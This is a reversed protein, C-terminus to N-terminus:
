PKRLLKKQVILMDHCATRLLKLKTLYGSSYFKKMMSKSGFIIIIFVQPAGTLFGVQFLEVKTHFGLSIMMRFRSGGFKCVLREIFIYPSLFFHYIRTNPVLVTKPL